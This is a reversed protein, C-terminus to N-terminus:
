CYDDYISYITNPRSDIVEKMKDIELKHLKLPSTTLVGLPTLFFNLPFCHRRKHLRSPQVLSDWRRPNQERWREIFTLSEKMFNFAYMCM